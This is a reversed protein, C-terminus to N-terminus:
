KKGDLVHGGHGGSGYGYASEIAKRRNLDNIQKRNGAQEAELWAKMRGYEVFAQADTQEIRKLLRVADESRYIGDAQYEPCGSVLDDHSSILEAKRKLANEVIDIDSVKLANLAIDSVELIEKLLAIRKKHVQMKDDMNM